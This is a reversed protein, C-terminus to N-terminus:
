TKESGPSLEKVVKKLSIPVSKTNWIDDAYERITRDTSFKGMGATNVISMNTWRNKDLYASTVEKQAHLYSSFDSMVMFSDDGLLSNVIPRFIERDNNSFFGKEILDVVTKLEENKFYYESPRYLSSRLDFIKQADQGFIFINEKGVEEMIEINAGDLTGITAAGNLAFKMNGTGSAEMGATSIQESLDAAPIIRQALTVSYDPLFIVKLRDGIDRDNNVMDAVNNILKIILKAMQYAPAAKGSFIVTRPHFTFSIGSKFQYYLSIVHMINLLQRKYEHIRKIQCDFIADANLEVNYRKKIFDALAKKNANKISRWQAQFANDNAYKSLKKLQYLDTLWKDGITESILESLGPNCSKLWRRQTIGNTKNNFKEPWIENFDKFIREKLLSSHLAAVGNVSFSGIIALNAMRVRRETGEEIISIRKIEEEDGTDLHIKQLFRRNIEYIIQMHRPLIKELLWVRWTELAEQLITHNTYAFTKTTIEWAKEWPIKEQDVLLRMLEPICLIPHTDNLQIVVKKPFQNFNNHAKKFRRLIDQLTASSLFYEQKLRLERGQILDDRPYLVKSIVESDIKDKVAKDYDGDNFYSLNFEEGAKASWLRLTNVTQNNYGPIPIDYAVAITEDTEVWEFKFEGNEDRSQNVKGHFKVPYTFEPREMEWPNGYRLWHDPTEVQYGNIIKQTFIGYEYRLGYGYAPLELTAMSDLFCAALRGLGGNGLGADCELEALDELDLGLEWVANKTAETLGLNLLANGLLRGLMFEMSIFYVRKVDRNYYTQQTEIWREFLRDRITFSISKFYDHPTASYRDKALSFELHNVFDKQLSDIDRGLIENTSPSLKGLLPYPNKKTKNMNTM